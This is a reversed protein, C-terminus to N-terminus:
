WKPLPPTERALEVLAPVAALQRLLDNLHTCSSTGALEPPMARALDTVDRGILRGPAAAARPCEVYPLVRPQADVALLTGAADIRACVVYEHLVGPGHVPDCWTDRFTAEVVTETGPTVDLRRTRRLRGSSLPPRREMACPDPGDDPPAPALVPLPVGAGADLARMPTADTGWGACVDRMHRAMAPANDPGGVIGARLGAYFSLLVAIPVEDLLLGLPLLLGAPVIRRTAARWGSVARLGVLAELGSPDPTAAIATVLRDPTLRAELAAEGAVRGSGDAATVVDRAGATLLLPAGPDGPESEPWSMDVHSSRRVSGPQRAPVARVPDAPPAEDPRDVVHLPLVRQGGSTM